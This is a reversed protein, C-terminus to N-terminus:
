RESGPYSLSIDGRAISQVAKEFSRFPHFILRRFPEWFSFALSAVFIPAIVTWLFIDWSEFLSLIVSWLIIGTFILATVFVMYKIELRSKMDRSMCGGEYFKLM